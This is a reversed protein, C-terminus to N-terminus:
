GLMRRMGAITVGGIHVPKPEFVHASIPVLEPPTTTGTDGEFIPWPTM